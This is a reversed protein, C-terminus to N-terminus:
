GRLPPLRTLGQGSILEAEAGEPSHREPCAALGLPERGQSNVEAEGPSPFVVNRITELVGLLAGGWAPSKPVYGAHAHGFVFRGRSGM